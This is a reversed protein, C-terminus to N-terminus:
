GLAEVARLSHFTEPVSAQTFIDQKDAATHRNIVVPGKPPATPQLEVHMKM